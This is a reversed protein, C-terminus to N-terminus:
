YEYEEQNIQILETLHMGEVDGYGNQIIMLSYQNIHYFSLVKTPPIFVPNM